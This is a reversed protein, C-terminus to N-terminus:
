LFAAASVQVDAPQQSAAWARASVNSAATSALGNPGGLAQASSVAFSNTGGSGWQSWGSPLSGVAAGASSGQLLPAGSPTLRGELEELGPAATRVTAADRM